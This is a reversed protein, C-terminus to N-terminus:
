HSRSLPWPIWARRCQCVIFNSLFRMSMRKCPALHAALIHPRLLFWFGAGDLSLRVDQRVICNMLVVLFTLSSIISSVFKGGTGNVAANGLVTAPV